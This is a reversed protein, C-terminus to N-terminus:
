FISFLLYLVLSHSNRVFLILDRLDLHWVERFYSAFSKSAVFDIFSDCCLLVFKLICYADRSGVWSLVRWWCGFAVRWWVSAVAVSVTPRISLVEHKEKSRAGGKLEDLFESALLM